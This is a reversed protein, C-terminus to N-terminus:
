AKRIFECKQIEVIWLVELDDGKWDNRVVVMKELRIWEGEDKAQSIALLSKVSWRTCGIMKEWGLM